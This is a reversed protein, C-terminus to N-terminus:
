FSWFALLRMESIHFLGSFTTPLFKIWLLFVTFKRCNCPIFIQLSPTQFPTCNTLLTYEFAPVRRNFITYAVQVDAMICKM